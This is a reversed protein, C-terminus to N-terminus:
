PHSHFRQQGRGLMVRSTSAELKVSVMTDPELFDLRMGTVVGEDNHNLTFLLHCPPPADHGIRDIEARLRATSGTLVIRLSSADGDLKSTSKVEACCWGGQWRLVFDPYGAGGIVGLRYSPVATLRDKLFKAAKNGRSQPTSGAFGPIEAGLLGAADFGASLATAIGERRRPPWPGILNRPSAIGEWRQLRTYFESFSTLKAEPEADEAAVVRASRAAM